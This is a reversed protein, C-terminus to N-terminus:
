AGAQTFVELMSTSQTALYTGDKEWTSCQSDKIAALGRVTMHRMPFQWETAETMRFYFYSIQYHSQRARPQSSNWCRTQSHTPCGRGLYLNERLVVRGRAVEVLMHVFNCCSFLVCCCEGYDSVCIQAQNNSSVTVRQALEGRHFRVRRRASVSAM